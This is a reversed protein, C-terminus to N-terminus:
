RHIAAKIEEVVVSKIDGVSAKTGRAMFPNARMRKTGTEVYKAYEVTPGITAYKPFIEQGESISARMRGTDVPSEIKTYREVVLLSKKFITPLAKQLAEGRNKMHQQMLLMSGLDISLRM